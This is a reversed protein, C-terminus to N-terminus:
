VASISTTESVVLTSENMTNKSPGVKLLKPQVILEAFSHVRCAFYICMSSTITALTRAHQRGKRRSPSHLPALVELRPLIQRVQGSRRGTAHLHRLCQRCLSIKPRLRSTAFPSATLLLRFHDLLHSTTMITRLLAPTYLFARPIDQSPTYSFSQV